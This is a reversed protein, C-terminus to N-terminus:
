ACPVERYVNDREVPEFGESRILGELRERAMKQPTSAGAMHYIKEEVVTGDLDSAGWKQALASLQVGFMVWYAKIHPINDLYLRSAAIMRLKEISGPEPLRGLRNNEHHYALPIFCTFGGTEDQLARLRGLHDIRDEPTEVTGFLMTCNTALGLAHATRHVDLWEEATAKTRAIKNRIGPAFVEAGGGPLSSLGCEMLETLVERHSKGFRKSFHHIEVATFAKIGVTPHADHLRRIMSTYYDWPLSPHNGGVIHLERAGLSTLEEAKRLVDDVTMEYAASKELTDRSFSCFLCIEGCVNSYNIHRNIVFWTRLGHLNQRARGGLWGLAAIDPTTMLLQGESPGLREGAALLDAAKQLTSGPFLSHFESADAAKLLPDPRAGM